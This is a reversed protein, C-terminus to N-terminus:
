GFNKSTLFDERKSRAKKIDKSLLESRELYNSVIKGSWREDVRRKAAKM